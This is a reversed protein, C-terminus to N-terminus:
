LADPNDIIYKNNKLIPKQRLSTTKGVKRAGALIVVPHEKIAAEILKSEM